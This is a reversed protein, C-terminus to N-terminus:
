NKVHSSNLRTSKRDVPPMRLVLGDGEARHLGDPAIRRGFVDLCLHRGNRADADRARCAELQAFHRLFTGYADPEARRDLIAPPWIPLADHPSVPHAVP